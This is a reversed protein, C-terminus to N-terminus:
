RTSRVSTQHATTLISLLILSDCSTDRPTEPVTPKQGRGTAARDLTYGRWDGRKHPRSRYVYHTRVSTGALRNLLLAGNLIFRDDFPSNALRYLFRELAFYQLLEQFPHGQALVQNLLCQRVSAGLGRRIM